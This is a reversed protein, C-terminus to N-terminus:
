GLIFAAAMLLTVLLPVLIAAVVPWIVRDDGGHGDDGWLPEIVPEPEIAVPEPAVARLPSGCRLCTLVGDDNHEFCTACIRGPRVARGATGPLRRVSGPLPEPAAPEPRRPAVELLAPHVDERGGDWYYPGGPVPEWIEAVVDDEIGVDAVVENLEIKVGLPVEARILSVVQRKEVGDPLPMTVRVWRTDGDPCEGDGYVGGGDEILVPAGGAIVSLWQQLGSSTGRATLAQSQAQLWDRARYEHLGEVPDAPSAIWSGLWPVFADPTVGVDAASGITDVSHVLTDSVEEFIALFRVMFDDQQMVVPMQRALWGSAQASM